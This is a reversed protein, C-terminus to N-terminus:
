GGLISPGILGLLTTAMIELFGALGLVLLVLFRRSIGLNAWFVRQHSIRMELLFLGAVVGVLLISGSAAPWPSQGLAGQGMGLLIHCGVWLFGTVRALYSLLAPCPWRRLSVVSEDNVRPM